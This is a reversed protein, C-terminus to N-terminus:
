IKGLGESIMSSNDDISPKPLRGEKSMTPRKGGTTKGTGTFHASSTLQHISKQGSDAANEEDSLDLKAKKYQGNTEL